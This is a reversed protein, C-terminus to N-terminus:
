ETSLSGAGLPNGKSCSTFGGFPVSRPFGHEYDDSVCVQMTAGFRLPYFKLPCSRDQTVPNNLSDSYLGGFLYGTNLPVEGRAVCWYTSYYAFGCVVQCSRFNGQCYGCHPDYCRQATTSGQYVLVAEYGDSCSFDSTLPNKQILDQCLWKDPYVNDDCTQFVGGFTYNNTPSECSKDDFNARFSFNPSDMKTCGAITNTKYYEKIAEKVVDAVKFVLPESIEPLSGPTVAYHLPDGSRDVAVLEDLIQDEWQSTVFDVRFPPGGFTYVFSYAVNKTYTDLNQKGTLHSYGLKASFNGGFLKFFSLSAAATIESKEGEYDALYKKKLHDMKALVAGANISSIFHTGFDRVLMQALYNPWNTNNQQLHMAIEILRSKFAPSLASDPEIRAKYLNHRLQVLITVTNDEVQHRKVSEYESSYSGSISFFPFKVSAEANISKATITAYNTWHDYVDAYTDVKSNKVPYLVMNDPILFKSDDSTKCKSYNREFVLGMHQNRLNDWGSGPLVEFRYVGKALPCNRPDGVPFKFPSSDNQSSVLGSDFAALLLLLAFLSRLVLAMAANLCLIESAKETKYIYSRYLKGVACNPVHNGCFLQTKGRLDIRETKASSM